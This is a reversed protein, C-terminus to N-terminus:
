VKINNEKAFAEVIQELYYSLTRIEKDAEKELAKKLKPRIAFTARGKAKSM